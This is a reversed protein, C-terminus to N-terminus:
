PSIATLGLHEAFAIQAPDLTVFSVPRPIRTAAALHIADSMRAPIDRAIHGAIELCRTDVPVTYLWDWTFRLSDELDHRLITEDTLRDIAALAEALALESAFWHDHRDLADIVVSRGPTDAIIALLASTDLALHSDNAM